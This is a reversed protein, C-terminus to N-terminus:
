ILPKQYGHALLYHFNKGVDFALWLEKINLPNAAAVALVLADTDVTRMSAKTNGQRVANELHLLMTMPAHLLIQYM